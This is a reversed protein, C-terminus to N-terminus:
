DAAGRAGYAARRRLRAFWLTAALIALVPPVAALNLTEWGVYYHLSGSLLSGVGAAGFVMFENVAQTKAREAVSYAETLLTTGGIFLFNWGLGLLTMALWFNLMAVGAVAVATSALMAAAGAGMVTLVGFRRILHGTFFSPAFMGLVHWQIVFAADGFSYARSVMALPTISMMLVMVGYATAGGLAAVAFAPQRMVQGLRRGGRMEIAQPRPVDIFAALLFVLGALGAIALLPGVYAAAFLDNSATAIAPGAFAAFVGGAMVLAIARSRFDDSAIESAAFRLYYCFGNYAGITAVGLCLLAFSGATVAFAALLAGFVGFLAGVMFGARRGIRRMLFSAPVTAAATGAWMLAAPLTALSKDGALEYGVLATVSVLLVNGTVVLAFCGSLLGVNRRMPDRLAAVIM